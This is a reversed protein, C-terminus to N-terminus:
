YSIANGPPFMLLLNSVVSAVVLVSELEAAPAVVAAVVELLVSADVLAEGPVVVVVAEEDPLALVSALEDPVAAAATM